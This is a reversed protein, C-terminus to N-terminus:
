YTKLELLTATDLEHSYKIFLSKMTLYDQDVKAELADVNDALEKTKFPDISLM